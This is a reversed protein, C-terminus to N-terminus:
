TGTRTNHHRMVHTRLGPHLARIFPQPPARHAAACQGPMCGGPAKGLWALVAWGGSVIAGSVAADKESGGLTKGGLVICNASLGMLLASAAAAGKGTGVMGTLGWFTAPFALGMIGWGLLQLGVLNRVSKNYDRPLLSSLIDTDLSTLKKWLGGGRRACVVAMIVQKLVVTSATVGYGVAPVLVGAAAATKLTRWWLGYWLFGSAAVEDSSDRAFRGALSLAVLGSGRVLTISQASVAQGWVNTLVSAPALLSAVGWGLAQYSMLNSLSAVPSNSNPLLIGDKVTTVAQPMALAVM